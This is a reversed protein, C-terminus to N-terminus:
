NWRDRYSQLRKELVEYRAVLQSAVIKVDELTDNECARQIDAALKAVEQGSLNGAVGKILHAIESAVVLSENEVAQELERIHQPMDDVFLEVIKLLRDEKGRLRRLADEYDWVPEAGETQTTVDEEPEEPTILWRDLLRGVEIHDIPKTLYDSMGADLCKAKDGKMANATMAVIPINRNVEGAEGNRIQRTAEYGDLEPMQCDMFVLQYPIQDPPNVLSALAELGNSAIDAGLGLDELLGLAVQQNIENDEVLLIRYPKLGTDQSMMNHQLDRLYHHTVLPEAKERAEGNAMLVAVADHLDSSTAPKPFYGDFGLDALYRADGPSSSSTMMILKIEGFRDDSRIIKGLTAGDMGPLKKDMFVMDVISNNSICQQELFGLAEKGEEAEFVEMGWHKLQSRVFHRHEEHEDIILATLGDFKVNPIVIKRADGSDLMIHFSFTSGRGPVSMVDVAGDMLVCLKKVIALGLGTGGYQRTNSGDVQTFSNFLTPLKDGPIGIGTDTVEGVLKMQGDVAPGLSARIAIEGENTFKIANDVLNVMIQRLRGPDGRVAFEEVMTIDLVLELNKEKAKAVFDEHVERLHTQLDFDLKELQMRGVEFKSFDLVDNIVTLLSRACSEAVGAKARQDPTLDSKLLLNIMGLVGNMPTRFEHNIGALFEEKAQVALVATNKAEILALEAEKRDTIDLHTGIMRKPEGDHNREVVLGTDLTWIWRGDKHQMRTECEFRDSVGSFHEDLQRQFEPLDDQHMLSQWTDISAPDFEELSHGIIEVWRENLVIQGSLVQWDWTGVGTSDLILSLQATKESLAIEDLKQETIDCSTGVMRVFNGSEDAIARAHTKICRANGNPWIIRFQTDFDQGTQICQRFQEVVQNHDDPFIISEWYEYTGPFDEEEIGYLEYMRKDWIFRNTELDLDWVGIGPAELAFDLRFSLERLSSEAEKSATIDEVSVFFGEVKGQRDVDPTYTVHIDKIGGHLYDVNQAFSVQKGDLVDDVYPRLVEYASDGLIDAIHSGPITDVSLGFWREYNRNAFRFRREKDVYSLLVPVSETIGDIYKRTEELEADHDNKVSMMNHFSRAMVGVEDRAKVPLNSVQGTYEYREIAKTMSALPGIIKRSVAIAILLAVLAFTLGFVASRDLFSQLQLQIHQVEHKLLTRLVRHNGVSELHLMSYYGIQGHSGMEGDVGLKHQQAEMGIVLALEPFLEQLLVRQRLDFGFQWQKEPHVLIDGEQNAIVVTVGQPLSKKIQGVLENFKSSIVIVGIIEGSKMEFTPTAVELLPEHPLVIKGNERDLSIRSFYVQGPKHSRVETIYPIEDSQLRSSPVRVIQGNQREVRVMEQGNAVYRIRKYRRNVRLKEEFLRTLQEQYHIQAAGDGSQVGELM